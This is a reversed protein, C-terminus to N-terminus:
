ARPFNFAQTQTVKAALSGDDRALESELVIMTRGRHLPRTTSTVAGERVARLFNTKSEITATGSAGEPLNLFACVGGCTDALAMLAGGHMLDGATCREPAFALRGRVLEPGAELLEIGILVAFPMVDRLQEPTAM